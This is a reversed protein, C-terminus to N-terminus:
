INRLSRSYFSIVYSNNTLLPQSLLFSIGTSTSDLNDTELSGYFHGDVTNYIVNLSCSDTQLDLTELEGIGYVSDLLSCYQFNSINISDCDRLYNLEFSGNLFQQSFSLKFTFVLLYIVKKM